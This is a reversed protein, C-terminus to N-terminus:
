FDVHSPTATKFHSFGWNDLLEDIDASVHSKPYAGDLFKDNVFLAVRNFLPDIGRHRDVRWRTLQRLRYECRRSVIEARECQLARSLEVLARMYSIVDHFGIGITAQNIMGEDPSGIAQGESIIRELLDTQFSLLSLFTQAATSRKLITEAILASRIAAKAIPDGGVRLTDDRQIPRRFNCASELLPGFEPDFLYAWKSYNHHFQSVFTAFRQGFLSRTHEQPFYESDLGLILWFYSAVMNAFSYATARTSFPRSFASASPRLIGVDFEVLNLLLNPEM